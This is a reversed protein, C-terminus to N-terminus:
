LLSVHKLKKRFRIGYLILCVGAIFAIVGALLTQLEGSEKYSQVLWASFAFALVTSATIFFIHFAKLSM